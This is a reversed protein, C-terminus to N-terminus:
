NSNARHTNIYSTLLGNGGGSWQNYGNQKASSECFGGSNSVSSPKDGNQSDLGTFLRYTYMMCMMCCARTSKVDCGLSSLLFVQVEPFTLFHKYKAVNLCIEM